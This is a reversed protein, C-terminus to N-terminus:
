KSSLYMTARHPREWQISLNGNDMYTSLIYDHYYLQIVHNIPQYCTTMSYPKYASLMYDYYLQLNIPQYCTTM